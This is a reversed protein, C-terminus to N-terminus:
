LPSDNKGQTRVAQVGNTPVDAPRWIHGCGKCLHSRHPPNDWLMIRDGNAEFHESPEPADIHQLGCAPCHLVMDIAAGASLMAEIRSYKETTTHNDYPKHYAPLKAFMWAQSDHYHWSAQGTPLDIYVCGHWKDSWGLIATKRTGSPFQRALLAVLYNRETYAQDKSKRMDELAARLNRVLASLELMLETTPKVGRSAMVALEPGMFSAENLLQDTNM